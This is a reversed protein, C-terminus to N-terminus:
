RGQLLAPPFTRSHRFFVGCGGVFVVDFIHFDLNRRIFGFAAAILALERRWLLIWRRHGWAIRRVGNDSRAELERAWFLAVIV